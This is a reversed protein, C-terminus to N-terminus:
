KKPVIACITTGKGIASEIQLKGGLSLARERLGIMGLTNKRQAPEFGQGNDAITLYINEIDEKTSVTVSGAKAHRMVNTLSEQAMRFLETKININLDKDDFGPEFICEIGNLNQFEACQWLLAANLGFDDLISPRLSSAIKRVSNILVEITKNAHAIRNKAPEELAVIKIGLWDIDIKLASALQGLEDHVERAIYKREEERVNQLYASLLKLEINKEQLEKEDKKRETIDQSAGIMRIPKGDENRIIYGRDHVYAYEGNTKLFRYEDEWYNQSANKFIANRRKTVREWDEPHAIKNWFYDVETENWGEYGFLTELKKEDRIVKNTLLNWDWISDNTAKAIMDYRENSIRIIEAGKKRETIDRAIAIIRNDMCKKVNAEVSIFTGDKTIMRRETFIQKGEALLDFKIPQARLQEPDILATINLQMLEQKTYGFMDCLSTNVDIFNGKFDTVMIADSAQEFLSRYEDKSEKTAAEAKIRDSIDIGMGILCSKNEFEASHGTFFYPIKKGEKTLINAEVEASGTEFAKGIKEKVLEREDIDIFDLPQMKNIEEPSYGSVKEFNRNWHLYKGTDDFLYFIGPLSNIISASLEKELIIKNEAEKQATIDRFNNVVANVAPDNLLNAAIGDMWRWDGNAHQHRWQAKSSSGPFALLKEMIMKMRPADEPHMSGFGSKGIRDEPLYGLTTQISPSIYLIRGQRDTLAIVESSKEILSRFRLESNKLYDEARMKETIDISMVLVAPKGQYDIHYSTIDVDILDGNKKLHRWLGNHILHGTEVDRALELFRKSDEKPRIDIVSMSLFEERHYGYHSIAANNVELFAKTELDYIWLPVPNSYFLHRYREESELGASITLASGQRLKKNETKLVANQNRLKKVIAQLEEGM